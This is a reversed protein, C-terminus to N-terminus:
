PGNAPVHYPFRVQSVDPNAIGLEWLVKPLHLFIGEVLKAKAQTTQSVKM